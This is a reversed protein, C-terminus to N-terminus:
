VTVSSNYSLNYQSGAQNKVIGTPITFSIMDGPKVSKEPVEIQIEYVSGTKNSPVTCTATTALATGNVKLTINQSASVFNGNWNSPDIEIYIISDGYSTSNVILKVPEATKDSTVTSESETTVIKNETSGSVLIYKSSYYTKNSVKEIARVSFIYSTDASLKNITATTNKTNSILTVWKGKATDYKYVAYASAGKAKAWSISISSDTKETIKLSSVNDPNVTVTAKSYITSLTTTKEKKCYAKVAFKYTKGSELNKITTKLSTTKKLEVWNKKKSNYRYIIYGTAGTTKKWKLTATKGSISGKLSSVKKPATLVSIDKAKKAWVKKKGNKGYAKVRYTYKKGAKLSDIKCTTSTVTAVTKWKKGSKVSIQYGKANKAKSWKLTATSSTATAKLKSVTGVTGKAATVSVSLCLAILLVSFAATFAQIIKRNM